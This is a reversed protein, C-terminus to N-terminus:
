AYLVTYVGKKLRRQKLELPMVTYQKVNNNAISRYDFSIACKNKTAEGIIDYFHPPLAASLLIKAIKILQSSTKKL